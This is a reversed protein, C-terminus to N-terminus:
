EKSEIDFSYMFDASYNPKEKSPRIVFEFTPEMSEVLTNQARYANAISTYQRSLGALINVQYWGNPLFITAKKNNKLMVLTSPTFEKLYPITYLFIRENVVKLCYGDRQHQLENYPKLLEPEDLSLNFYITYPYNQVGRMPVIVGQEVAIDGTEQTTFEQLLNDPLHHELKYQLLYDADGLIFYDMFDNLIEDFKYCHM